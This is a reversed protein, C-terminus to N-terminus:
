KIACFIQQYFGSEEPSLWFTKSFPVNRAISLLESRTIAWQKYTNHFLKPQEDKPIDIYFQNSTCINNNWTLHRLIIASGSSTIHYRTPYAWMPKQKLMEDYDRFSAIFIGGILLRNYISRLATTIDEQCLLHNLASDISIIADFQQEFTDELKRCDAVFYPIRLNRNESEKKAIDLEKSSIDSGVVNLGAKALSITQVGIGCTCDLVNCVTREAYRGFINKLVPGEILIDNELDPLIYKYRTAFYNYYNTPLHSVRSTSIRNSYIYKTSTVTKGDSLIVKDLNDSKSTYAWAYPIFCDILSKFQSSSYNDQYLGLQIEQLLPRKINKFYYNLLFSSGQFRPNFEIFLIREDDIVFDIGCVGIYENQVLLSAIKDIFDNILDKHALYIENGSIFDSGNFMYNNDFLQESIPFIIYGSKNCFITVNLSLANYFYPAIIYTRQNNLQDCLEKNNENIIITGEGGESICDQIIFTDYGEFYEKMAEYSCDNKNGILFPPTQIHKSCMWTRSLIKNSLFELLHPENNLKLYCKLNPHKKIIDYGWLENYLLFRYNDNKKILMYIKEVVFSLFKDYIFDERYEELFAFNRGFNSGYITISGEFSGSDMLESECRGIWIYKEM